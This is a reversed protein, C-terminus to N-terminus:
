GVHMRGPALRGVSYADPDKPNSGQPGVISGLIVLGVLGGIVWQLVKGM